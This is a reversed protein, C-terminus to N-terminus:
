KPVGGASQTCPYWCKAGPAHPESTIQMYHFVSRSIKRSFCGPYTGKSPRQKSKKKRPIKRLKKLPTQPPLDNRPYIIYYKPAWINGTTQTTNATALVPEQTHGCLLIPWGVRRNLHSILPERASHGRLMFLSCFMHQQQHVSDQSKAWVIWSVNCHRVCSDAKICLREPPLLTVLIPSLVYTGGGRWGTGLGGYSTPTTPTNNGPQSKSAPLSQLTRLYSTHQTTSTEEYFM